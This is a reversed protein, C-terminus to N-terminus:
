PRSAGFARSRYRVRVDAHHESLILHEMVVVQRHHSARIVSRVSVLACRFATMANGQQISIARMEAAPNWRTLSFTAHGAVRTLPVFALRALLRSLLTLVVVQLRLLQTLEEVARCVHTPPAAISGNQMSEASIQLRVLALNLASCGDSIVTRLALPKRGVDRV